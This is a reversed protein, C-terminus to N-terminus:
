SKNKKKKLKFGLSTLFSKNASTLRKLQRKRSFVSRTPRESKYNSYYYDQPITFSNHKFLFVM